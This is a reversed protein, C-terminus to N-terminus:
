LEPYYINHMKIMEGELKLLDGRELWKGWTYMAIKLLM